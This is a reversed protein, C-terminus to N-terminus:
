DEWALAEFRGRLRAGHLPHVSELWAIRGRLHQRFTPLGARNAAAPGHRAADHLIAKLRDYEARTVNTRDNVVIGAVRQRGARTMLQSKTENVTFGEERAIAGVRERVLAARRHLHAGGSLVLDDAYRTYRAGYVGALAALRRDLRHACLNALAPSTPAGQPLHPTALRRGLRHHAAIARPDHPRPVAAWEDVPVTNTSLGTLAHAVAEPYGATRFIGYVRGAAVSAFCDELDVRIVVRRGVHQAAHTRASRGAVFGHAADHAPIWALLEHLVRRQLAKLRPKPQEIVRMRGGARALWVYRYHRLRRDPVQRELSRVDAFWALEGDDLELWAALDAPTALEPVPWRRRAMAVEPLHRRVVRPPRAAIARRRPELALAVFATLERPRDAPPRPYAALVERALAPLWRPAPHLAARSRAVLAPETWAGALYAAALADALAATRSPPTM